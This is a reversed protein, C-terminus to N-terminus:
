GFYEMWKRFRCFSEIEPVEEKFVPGQIFGTNGMKRVEGQENTMDAVLRYIKHGKQHFRDFSLDDRVYLSILLVVSLATALGLINIFSYVQNHILSRFAIKLNNQLM